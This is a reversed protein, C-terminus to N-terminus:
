QQHLWQQIMARANPDTFSNFYHTPHPYLHEYGPLPVWEPNPESYHPLSGQPVKARIPRNSQMMNYDRNNGANYQFQSGGFLFNQSPLSSLAGHRNIMSNFNVKTPVYHDHHQRPKRKVVGM